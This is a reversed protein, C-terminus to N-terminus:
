HHFLVEMQTLVSYTQVILQGHDLPRLLANLNNAHEIIFIALSIRQNDEPGRQPRPSNSIGLLSGPEDIIGPLTLGVWHSAIVITHQWSIPFSVTIATALECPLKSSLVNLGTLLPPPTKHYELPVQEDIYKRIQEKAKYRLWQM